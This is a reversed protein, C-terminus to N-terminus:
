KLKIEIETKMLRFFLCLIMKFTQNNIIKGVFFVLKAIGLKLFVFVRSTIM